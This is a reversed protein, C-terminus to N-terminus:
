LLAFYCLDVVIVGFQRFVRAIVGFHILEQSGLKVWPCSATRSQGCVVTIELNPSVGVICYVYQISVTTQCIFVNKETKEGIYWKNQTTNRDSHFIFFFYTLYLQFSKLLLLEVNSLMLKKRQQARRAHPARVTCDLVFIIVFKESFPYM